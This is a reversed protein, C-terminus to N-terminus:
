LSPRANVRGGHPIRRFRPSVSKLRTQVRFRQAKEEPSAYRTQTATEVGSNVHAKTQRQDQQYDVSKPGQRSTSVRKRPNKSMGGIGSAPLRSHSRSRRDALDCMTCRLSFTREALIFLYITEDFRAREEARKMTEREKRVL